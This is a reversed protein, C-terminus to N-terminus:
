GVPRWNVAASKEDKASVCYLLDLNEWIGTKKMAAIVEKMLQLYQGESLSQRAGDFIWGVNRDWIPASAAPLSVPVAAAAAVTAGGLLFSRRNM